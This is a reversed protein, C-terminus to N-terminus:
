KPSLTKSKAWNTHVVTRWNIREVVALTVRMHWWSWTKANIHTKVFKKKQGTKGPVM